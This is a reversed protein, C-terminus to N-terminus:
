ALELYSQVEDRMTSKLTTLQNTAESELHKAAKILYLENGAFFDLPDDSLAQKVTEEAQDLQGLKRLVAAKLNLGKTNYRNTAV